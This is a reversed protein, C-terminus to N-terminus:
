FWSKKIKCKEMALGTLNAETLKSALKETVFTFLPYSAVKFVEPANDFPIFVYKEIDMIRGDSFRSITSKKENLINKEYENAKLITYEIDGVRIPILTVLSDLLIMGIRKLADTKFIPIAGILFPADCIEKQEDDWQYPYNEIEKIDGWDEKGIIKMLPTNDYVITRYDRNPSYLRYIDM